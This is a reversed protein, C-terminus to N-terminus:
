NIYKLYLLVGDIKIGESDSPEELRASVSCNKGDNSKYGYYWGDRNRPDKPIEVLYKPVLAREIINSSESLKLINKSIPCSGKEAKYKELGKVILDVNSKRTQDTTSAAAITPAIDSDTAKDTSSVAPINIQNRVGYELFDIDVKASSVSSSIPFVIDLSAKKILKDKVGIWVYGSIKEVMKSKIGIENLSDGIELTDIKYKYVRVGSVNENGMRNGKISLSNANELGFIKDQIKIDKLKEINFTVWSNARSGESEKDYIINEGNKVYLNNNSNVVQLSNEQGEKKLTFMSEIANQSIKMELASTIEPAAIGETGSDNDNVIPESNDNYNANDSSTTDTVDAVNSNSNSQGQNDNDMDDSTDTDPASSNANINDDIIYYDYTSDYAAVPKAEIGTGIAMDRRSDNTTFGLLPETIESDVSRNVKLTVNGKIKYDTQKSISYAARLLSTETSNSLGGWLREIGMIGYVKEAGVSVLGVETLLVVLILLSITGVLFFLAPLRSPRTGKSKASIQQKPSTTISAPTMYQSPPPLIAARTSKQNIQPSLGITSVAATPLTATDNTLKNSSIFNNAPIQKGINEELKTPMEFPKEEETKQELSGYQTPGKQSPSEVLDLQDDWPGSNTPKVSVVGGSISGNQMASPVSVNNLNTLNQASDSM